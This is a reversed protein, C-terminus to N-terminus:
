QTAVSFSFFYNTCGGHDRTANRTKRALSITQRSTIKVVYVRGIEHYM